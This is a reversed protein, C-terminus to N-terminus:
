CTQLPHSLLTISVILYHFNEILYSFVHLLYSNNEFIQNRYMKILLYSMQIDTLSFNNVLLTITKTMPSSKSVINILHNFM